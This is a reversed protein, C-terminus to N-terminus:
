SYRISTSPGCGTRDSRSFSAARPQGPRRRVHQESLVGLDLPQESCTMSALPRSGAPGTRPARAAATPARSPRPPVPAGARGRRSAWRRRPSRREAPPPAPPWASAPRGRRAHCRRGPTEPDPEARKPLRHEGVGLPLLAVLKRVQVCAIAGFVRARSAEATTAACFIAGVRGCGPSSDAFALRRAPGRQRDGVPDSIRDPGRHPLAAVSPTRHHAPPTRTAAAVRLGSM